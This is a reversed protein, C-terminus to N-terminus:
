VIQGSLGDLSRDDNAHDSRADQDKCTLPFYPELVSPSFAVSFWGNGLLHRATKQVKEGAFLSGFSFLLLGLSGRSELNWWGVSGIGAFHGM